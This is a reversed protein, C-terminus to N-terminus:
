SSRAAGYGRYRARPREAHQASRGSGPASLRPQRGACGGWGCCGLERAQGARAAGAGRDLRRRRGGGATCYVDGGAWGCELDLSQLLLGSLLPLSGALLGTNVSEIGRRHWWRLGIALALLLGALCAGTERGRSEMLCLASLPLLVLAIRAASRLRGLEYARLGTARLQERSVM